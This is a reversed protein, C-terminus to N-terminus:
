AGLEDEVDSLGSELTLGVSESGSLGSSVEARSESSGPSDMVSGSDENELVLSLRGHVAQEQTCGQHGGASGEGHRM